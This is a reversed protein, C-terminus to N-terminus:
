GMLSMLIIRGKRVSKTTHHSLETKQSQEVESPPVSTSGFRRYGVLLRRWTVDKFVSPMQKTHHEICVASMERFLM